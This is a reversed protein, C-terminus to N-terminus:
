ASKGWDRYNLWALSIAAAVSALMVVRDYPQWQGKHMLLPFLPNFALAIVAGLLAIAYWRCAYFRFAAVAWAICVSIRLTQYYSYPHGPTNAGLYLAALLLLAVAVADVWRREKKSM